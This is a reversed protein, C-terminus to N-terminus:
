GVRTRIQGHLDTRFIQVGMNSLRTLAEETPHGYNNKGVSVVALEPTTAMLLEESTSHKSGHHGAVYFEIDPLEERELLLKESNSNIDGTFLADFEGYTLLYCIGQENSGKTSVPRFVTLDCAGLALLANQSVPLIEAGADRLTSEVEERHDDEIDPIVARDIKVRGLLASLGNVHDADYHTLLLYDLSTVGVSYLYDSALVGAGPYRNGGCDVMAAENESLLVVSQGQGVDLTVINLTGDTQRVVSALVSAALVLLVSVATLIGQRVTKGCRIWLIVALYLFVVWVVLVMNSLSIASFRLRYFFRTIAGIYALLPLLLYSLLKGLPFLLLSLLAAANGVYFIVSVVPLVLLNVLPAVLSVTQFYVGTLPITLALVSLTNSLNGALFSALKKPTKKPLRKLIAMSVPKGFVLIGFTALFSMQLGIDAASFPNWLLLAMLAASISTYADSERQLLSSLLFLIQVISARVMPPSAGTVLAFVLIMPIAAAMAWRKKGFVLFVAGTLFAVHMGSVSLIHSIGTVSFRSRMEDTIGEKDGFLMGKLLVAYEANGAFMADVAASLRHSIAVPLHRLPVREPQSVVDLPGIQKASLLIGKARYYTYFDFDRTDQPLHLSVSVRIVDGPKLGYDEALVLNARATGGVVRDSLRVSAAIQYNFEGQRGYELIEASVAAEMGDYKEVPPVIFGGYVACWLMGACMGLSLVRIPFSAGKKSLFSLLFLALFVGAAILWVDSLLYVFLFVAASFSFALLALPRERLTDFM